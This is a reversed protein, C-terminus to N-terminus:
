FLDFDLFFLLLYLIKDFKPHLSFIMYSFTQGDRMDLKCTDIGKVPVRSNNGVYLLKSGQPIRRFDVFLDCDKAIHYTAWSDVTWLSYSDTMFVSSSVYSFYSVKEIIQEKRPENCERAYHGKKGCNFCKIKVKNHKKSSNQSTKGKDCYWGKYNKEQKGKEKGDNLKRKQGQGGHSSSSVLHV